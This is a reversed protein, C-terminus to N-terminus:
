EHHQIRENYKKIAEFLLPNLGEHRFAAILEDVCVPLCKGGYPEGFKSTGYTSMRNDACVLRAVEKSNLDLKKILEDSENWFTILVSLYSNALLKATESATTSTVYIPRKMPAYLSVLNQAHESCCEGIIIRDPKLVDELAYQERLFEPNSMVHIAYKDMLGKATGVPVTSKIVILGEVDQKVLNDVADPVVDGPTCVFTFDVHKEPCKVKPFVYPDFAFVEHGLRELLFAEAKGVTGYGVINARM